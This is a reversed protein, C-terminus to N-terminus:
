FHLLQPLCTFDSACPRPRFKLGSVETELAWVRCEEVLGGGSHYNSSKGAPFRQAELYYRHRM